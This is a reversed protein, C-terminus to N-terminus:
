SVPRRGNPREIHMYLELETSSVAHHWSIRSKEATNSTIRCLVDYADHRSRGVSSEIEKSIWISAKEAEEFQWTAQNMKKTGVSLMQM